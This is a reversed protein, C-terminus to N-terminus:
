YIRYRYDFADIDQGSLCDVEVAGFKIKDILAGLCIKLFDVKYNLVLDYM